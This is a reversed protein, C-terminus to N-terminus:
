PALQRRWSVRIQDFDKLRVDFGRFKGIFGEEFHSLDAINREYQIPAGNKCHLDYLRDTLGVPSLNDGISEYLFWPVKPTGQQGMTGAAKVVSAPVPDFLLSHLGRKFFDGLLQGTFMKNSDLCQSGAKHFEQSKSPSLNENLWLTMNPYDASLGKVAPVALSTYNLEDAM